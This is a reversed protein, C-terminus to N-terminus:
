IYWIVTAKVRLYVTCNNLPGRSAQYLCFPRPGRATLPSSKAPCPRAPRLFDQVTGHRVYLYTIYRKLWVLRSSRFLAVRDAAPGRFTVRAAAFATPVAQADLAPPMWLALNCSNFYQLYIITGIILCSFCAAHIQNKLVQTKALM